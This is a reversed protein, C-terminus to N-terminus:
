GRSGLQSLPQFIPPQGDVPVTRFESGPEAISVLDALVM